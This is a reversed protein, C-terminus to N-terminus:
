QSSMRATVFVALLRSAIRLLNTWKLSSAYQPPSRTAVEGCRPASGALLVLDLEGTLKEDIAV